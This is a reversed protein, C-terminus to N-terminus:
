PSPVVNQTFLGQRDVLPFRECRQLGRTLEEYLGLFVGGRVLGGRFGPHEDRIARV